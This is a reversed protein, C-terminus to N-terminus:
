LEPNDTCTLLYEQLYVMQQDNAQHDTEWLLDALVHNQLKRM